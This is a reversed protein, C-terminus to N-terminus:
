SLRYAKNIDLKLIKTWKRVVEKPKKFNSKNEIELIAIKSLHSKKLKNINYFDAGLSDDNNDTLRVEKQVNGDYNEIKYFFGIHHIQETM